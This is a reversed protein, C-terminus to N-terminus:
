CGEIEWTCFILVRLGLRDVRYVWVSCRKVTMNTHCSVVHLWFLFDFCSMRSCRREFTLCICHMLIGDGGFSKKYKKNRRNVVKSKPVHRHREWVAPTLGDHFPYMFVLIHVYVCHSWTIISIQLTLVPHSSCPHSCMLSAVFKVGFPVEFLSNCLMGLHRKSQLPMNAILFALTKFLLGCFM